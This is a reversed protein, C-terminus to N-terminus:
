LRRYVHGRPGIDRVDVLRRERDVTFVIAYRESTHLETNALDPWRSRTRGLHIRPSRTSARSSGGNFTVHWASSIAPLRDAAKDLQDVLQHLDDRVTM